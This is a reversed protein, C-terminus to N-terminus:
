AKRKQVVVTGISWGNDKYLVNCKTDNYKAKRFFEIFFLYLNVCKQTMTLTWRFMLCTVNKEDVNKM